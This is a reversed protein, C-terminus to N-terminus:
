IALTARMSLHVAWARALMEARPFTVYEDTHSAVLVSPFPLRRQPLPRWSQLM